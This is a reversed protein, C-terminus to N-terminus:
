AEERFMGLYPIAYGLGLVRMGRTNGFRARIGRSVFRRAVIGLRQAYFARLDAVDNSM